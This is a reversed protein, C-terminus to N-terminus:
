IKNEDEGEDSDERDKMSAEQCIAEGEAKM